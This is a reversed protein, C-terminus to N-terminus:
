AEKLSFPNGSKKSIKMLESSTLGGTSQVLTKMSPRTPNKLSSKSLKSFNKKCSNLAESHSLKLSKPCEKYSNQYSIQHLSWDVEPKM